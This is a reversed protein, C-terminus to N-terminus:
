PATRPATLDDQGLTGDVVGSAVLTLTTGTRRAHARMLAFAEGVSVSARVSLVGKAQEILVRSQLASQLQESLATRERLNREHLLGITAVDAMAQGVSLDDATIPLASASFLNLVGIRQGRLRMPLAHTAGFGAAVAVPTFRPWRGLADDLSVNTVAHGTTYSETCPGEGIVLEYAELTRVQESTSAMLRLDGRQDALMLGSADVPLLEVTRETLLQLLDVVDFDDVLTDALEVLVQALRPTGDM